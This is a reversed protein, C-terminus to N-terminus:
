EKKLQLRTPRYLLIPIQLSGRGCFFLKVNNRRRVIIHKTLVNRVASVCGHVRFIRKTSRTKKKEIQFLFYRNHRYAGTHRYHRRVHNIFTYRCLYQVGQSVRGRSIGTATSIASLSPFAEGKSDMCKKIYCYITFDTSRIKTQFVQYEVKFWGGSLHGVLYRNKLNGRYNRRTQVSILKHHLLEKVAVSATKSDINCGRSIEDYSVVAAHLQNMRSSLYAYVFVGKASLSFNFIQNPMKFFHM